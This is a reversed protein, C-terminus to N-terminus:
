FPPPKYQSWSAYNWWQGTRTSFGEGLILDAVQFFSAQPQVFAWVWRSTWDPDERCKSRRQVCGSGQILSGWHFACEALEWSDSLQSFHMNPFGWSWVCDPSENSPSWIYYDEHCLIIITGSLKSITCILILLLFLYLCARTFDVYLDGINESGGRLSLM